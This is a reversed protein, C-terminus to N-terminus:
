YTRLQQLLDYITDVKGSAGNAKLKWRAAGDEGHDIWIGDSGSNRVVTFGKRELAKKTWIYELGDGHLSIEKDRERHITFSGHTKDFHIGEAAFSRELAGNLVLDEPAGTDISGGPSILWMRDATRLALELDHTSLVIARSSTGALRKLLAMIEVRRPLDLFATPEDLIMLEPEQALARAIMVKQREGDSLESIHRSALGSAGVAELAWIIREEDEASLSGTWTTYPYRGLAVLAFASLIGTSIKETLVVSLIRALVKPNIRFIEKGDIFVEGALAQQMGSITRLLTSKGSGNPGVLCVLEGRGLTLNLNEAVIYRQHKKQRYGISLGATELLNNGM